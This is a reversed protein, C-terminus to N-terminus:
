LISALGIQSSGSKRQKKAQKETTSLHIMHSSALDSEKKNSASPHEAGPTSFKVEMADVEVNNVDMSSVAAVEM